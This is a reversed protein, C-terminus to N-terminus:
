RLPRGNAMRLLNASKPLKDLGLTEQRFQNSMDDYARYGKHMAACSLKNSWSGLKQDPFGIATFENTPVLLPVLIALVASLGLKEAIFAGGLGKPHFIILDPRAAQAAIWADRLMDRTIAKARKLISAMTKLLGFVDSASEMATRGAASDVLDIFNNNMYGYNLGHETIFPEFSSCTSLTVTHGAAKLGKGLAIYPQVDGRSGATLIFINM